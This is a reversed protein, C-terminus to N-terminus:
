ELRYATRDAREAAGPTPFFVARDARILTARPEGAALFFRGAEDAVWGRGDARDGPV